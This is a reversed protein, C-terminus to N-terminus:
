AGNTIMVNSTNGLFIVLVACYAATAAFVEHKRAKTLVSCSASFVLTFLFIVLIQSRSKHKIESPTKPQLEFLVIVPVLLLVAAIITIMIRMFVDLREVSVLRM